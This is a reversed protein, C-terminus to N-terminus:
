YLSRFNLLNDVLFLVFALRTGFTGEFLSHISIGVLFVYANIVPHKAKKKKKKHSANNHDSNTPLIVGNPAAVTLSPAVLIENTDPLLPTRESPSTPPTEKHKKHEKQHKKHEDDSHTHPHFDSAVLDISYLLLLSAASILFAYPYTANPWAVALSAVADPLLHSFAVGIAVGGALCNLLSFLFDHDSKM